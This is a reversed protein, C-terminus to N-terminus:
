PRFVLIHQWPLVDIVRDLRYGEAELELRAERVSMKHEERIPVWESEKRFEILVLRGDKRLVRKLARLVVQPQALEHYVDVMLALDIGNEPLRPDTETALVLEVNALRETDTRKKILVLMEPQIDTAYVRGRDGVARSLLGSYYGSGAGIDAVVDGPKIELAAIAKTPAEESERETRDLWAAGKHSMVTAIRRGSVPHTPQAASQSVSDLSVLLLAATAVSLRGVVLVIDVFNVIIV